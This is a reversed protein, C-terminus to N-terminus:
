KVVAARAPGPPDLLGAASAGSPLPAGRDAIWAVVDAQVVAGQLDRFLMHYGRPYYAIRARGPPLRRAVSAVPAKPVLQDNAGYLLLVPLDLRPAAEYAADMLGAVGYILDIRAGKQVLPDRTQARLMPRNDSAVRGLGQGTLRMAPTTHAALWLTMAYPPPMTARSWVAPAALILGDVKPADPQSLAVMAVAGGMSGGVVYLPLGPHRARLLRIAKHLDGALTEAGAWVGKPETEGFGRQDYAYVAIGARRWTEAPDAFANSYDNLGHVGLIVARARGEAPWHRMPLVTGNGTHIARAGLAPAAFDAGSIQVEPACAALLPVGLLGVFRALVGSM